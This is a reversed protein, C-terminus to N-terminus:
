FNYKDCRKQITIYKQNTSNKEIAEFIKLIKLDKSLSYNYQKKEKIAQLFSRMEEIYMFEIYKYGKDKYAERNKIETWKKEEADYLKIVDDIWNWEITGKQGVVTLNRTSIRSVVDVLLHGISGNKFQLLIQYIDDIDSDLITTKKKMSLVKEINGFLWLIWVLEFLIIEKCGGTERQSAFFNHYDEWPHWDPLYQGSHYTFAVIKGIRNSEFLTKMLRINPHFRMTCSPAAVIDKKKCIEILAEMPGTSMNLEMFFHIDNEAAIKAYEMHLNPPNCIIFADPKADIAKKFNSFVDIGFKEKTEKRRDEKIDFGIIEGAKLYQLNRIRRKGMSGLGIVLFKM